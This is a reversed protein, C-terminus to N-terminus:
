PLEQLICQINIVTASGGGAQQLSLDLWYATGAVVAGVGEVAFPVLANTTSSTGFIVSSLSTGTAAVGNAPAVGSGFQLQVASNDPATNNFMSGSIRFRVKTSTAPTIVCTSGLGMMVPTGSTTGTPNTPGFNLYGLQGTAFRAPALVGSGINGANTADTACSASANSLDACALRAVSLAGGASTQKVVQSVGGSASLDTTGSPFKFSAAGAVNSSHMTLTGASAGNLVLAADNFQQVASWTQSLDPAALTHTGAPLTANTTATSTLTTPFAGAQTFAGATSFAGGTTFTGGTSLNGGLVLTSASCSWISVGRILFKNQTNCLAQDFMLSFTAPKAPARAASPNGWVQGAPLLGTQQASAATAFLAFALALITKNIKM